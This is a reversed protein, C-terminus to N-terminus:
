KDDKLIALSALEATKSLRQWTHKASATGSLNTFNSFSSEEPKHPFIGRHLASVIVSANVRLQHLVVDDVAYGIPDADQSVFWYQAHVPVAADAQLSRAFLGYVPLQFKKGGATPDDQSM